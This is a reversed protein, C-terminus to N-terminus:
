LEIWQLITTFHDDMDMNTLEDLNVAISSKINDATVLALPSYIDISAKGISEKSYKDFIEVLAFYRYTTRTKSRKFKRKNRKM